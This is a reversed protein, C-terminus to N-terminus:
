RRTDTDWKCNHCIHCKNSHKYRSIQNIDTYGRDVLWVFSIVHADAERERQPLSFPSLGDVDTLDAVYKLQRFPLKGPKRIKGHDM